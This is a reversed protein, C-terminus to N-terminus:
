WWGPARERGGCVRWSSWPYADLMEWRRAVLDAGPDPISAVRAPRQDAKALGLGALHVPNLHLHRAVEPVDEARQILITKFRRQFVHGSTRRAPRLPCLVVIPAVPSGPEPELGASADSRPLPQGDSRLRPDRGPFAGATRRPSRPAPPRRRGHPLDGRLPQGPERCSASRRSCACAM